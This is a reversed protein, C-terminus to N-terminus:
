QSWGGHPGMPILGGLADALGSVQLLANLVLAGGIAIVVYLIPYRDLFGPHERDLHVKM